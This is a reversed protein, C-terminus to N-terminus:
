LTSSRRAESRPKSIVKIIMQCSLPLSDGIFCRVVIHVRVNSKRSVEAAQVIYEVQYRSDFRKVQRLGALLSLKEVLQRRM